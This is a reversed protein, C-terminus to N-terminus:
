MDMMIGKTGRLTDGIVDFPAKVFGGGMAPHGQGMIERSFERIGKSWQIAATGAEM